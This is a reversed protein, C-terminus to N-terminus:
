ANPVDWEDSRPLHIKANKNTILMYNAYKVGTDRREIGVALLFALATRAVALYFVSTIAENYAMIVDDLHHPFAERATERVKSTGAGLLMEVQEASLLARWPLAKVFYQAFLVHKSKEDLIHQVTLLAM